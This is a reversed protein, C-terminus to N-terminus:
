VFVFHESVELLPMLPEFALNLFEIIEHEHCKRLFRIILSKRSQSADKDAKTSVTMMKTHLMKLLIPMLKDRHVDVIVCDDKDIRFSLLESRFTKENVINYLSDKYPMLYKHKYTMLCDLALKQVEFNRHTLFEIYKRHLEQHMNLKKPNKIKAFLQLHAILLKQTAKPLQPTEQNDDEDIEENKKGRKQKKQEKIAKVKYYEDNLFNFFISVIEQHKVEYITECQALLKWLLLRYNVYDARDNRQYNKSFDAAIIDARFATEVEESEDETEKVNTTKALAFDLQEKCVLWFKDDPMADAYSIIIKTVPEWLLKFNVFYLSFMYKLADIKYPSEAINQQFSSDFNLKQLFLLKTRYDQVSADSCEAKYIVDYLSDEEDKVKLISL